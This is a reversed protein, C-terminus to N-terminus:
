EEDDEDEVEDASDFDVSANHLFNLTLTATECGPYTHCDANSLELVGSASIFRDSQEKAVVNAKELLRPGLLEPMVLAQLDAFTQNPKLAINLIFRESFKRIEFPEYLDTEVLENKVSNSYVSHPPTIIDYGKSVLMRAYKAVTDLAPSVIDLSNANYMFTELNLDGILDLTALNPLTNGILIIIDQGNLDNPQQNCFPVIGGTQISEAITDLTVVKGLPNYSYFARASLPYFVLKCVRDLATKYSNLSDLYPSIGSKPLRVVLAMLTISDIGDLTPKPQGSVLINRTAVGIGALNMVLTMVAKNLSVSDDFPSACKMTDEDELSIKLDLDDLDVMPQYNDLTGGVAKDILSTVEARIQEADHAPAADSGVAIHSNDGNDVAAVVNPTEAAPPKMETEIVTEVIPKTQGITPTADFDDSADEEDAAVSAPSYTKPPEDGFDTESPELEQITTASPQTDQVTEVAEKKVVEITSEADKSVATALPASAKPVLSPAPRKHQPNQMIACEKFNNSFMRLKNSKNLRLGM